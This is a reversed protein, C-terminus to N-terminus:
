LEKLYKTDIFLFREENGFRMTLTPVSLATAWEKSNLVFKIKGQGPKIASAQAKMLKAGDPPDFLSAFSTIKSKYDLVFEAGKSTMTVHFATVQFDDNPFAPTFPVNGKKVM